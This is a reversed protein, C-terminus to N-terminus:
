RLEFSRASGIRFKFMFSHGYTPFSTIGMLPGTIPRPLRLASRRSAGVGPRELPYSATEFASM